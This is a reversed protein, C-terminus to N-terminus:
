PGRYGRLDATLTDVTYLTHCRTRVKWGLLNVAVPSISIADFMSRRMVGIKRPDNTLTKLGCDNLFGSPEIVSGLYPSEAMQVGPWNLSTSLFRQCASIPARSVFAFSSKLTGNSFSGAFMLRPMRSPSSFGSSSPYPAPVLNALRVVFIWGPTTLMSPVGILRSFELVSRTYGPAYKRAVTFM